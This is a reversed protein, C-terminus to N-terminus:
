SNLFCFQQGKFQCFFLFARYLDLTLDKEYVSKSHLLPVTINSTANNRKWPSCFLRATPRSSLQWHTLIEDSVKTWRTGEDLAKEPTSLECAVGTSLLDGCQDFYVLILQIWKLQFFCLFHSSRLSGPTCKYQLTDEIVYVIYM